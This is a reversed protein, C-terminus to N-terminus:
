QFNYIIKKYESLHKKGVTDPHIEKLIDSDSYDTRVRKYFANKMVRVLNTYSEDEILYCGDSPIYEKYTVENPGIVLSGASLAHILAGSTRIPPKSLGLFSLLPKIPKYKREWPTNHSSLESPFIVAKANKFLSIYRQESVRQLVFIDEGLRNKVFGYDSIIKKLSVGSILLSINQDHFKKIFTKFISDLNSHKYRSSCLLFYDSNCGNEEEVEEGFDDFYGIHRIVRFDYEPYKSSLFRKNAKSHVITLDSPELFIKEVFKLFQIGYKRILGSFIDSYKRWLNESLIYYFLGRLTSDHFTSVVPIGKNEVKSILDVQFLHYKSNGVQFHLVDFKRVFKSLSSLSRLFVVKPAHDYIIDEYQNSTYDTLITVDVGKKELAHALRITYKSIGTKKNVPSILCVKM